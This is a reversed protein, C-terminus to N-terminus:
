CSSCRGAFSIRRPRSSLTSKGGPSRSTLCTHGIRTNTIAMTRVHANGLGSNGIKDAGMELIGGIGSILAPWGYCDHDLPDGCVTEGARGPRERDMEVPTPNPDIKASHVSM